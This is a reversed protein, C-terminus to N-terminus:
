DVRRKGAEGFTSKAIVAALQRELHELKGDHEKVKAALHKTASTVLELDGAESLRAEGAHIQRILRTMYEGMKRTGGAIEALMDPVDTPVLLSLRTTDQSM